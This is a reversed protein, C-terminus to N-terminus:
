APSTSLVRVTDILWTGNQNVLVYRHRERIRTGNNYIYLLTVEVVNEGSQAAESATVSSIKSWFSDYGSKGGAPSNQFKPTLRNWAQDRNGPMLAYYDTVAALPTAPQGANPQETPPPLAPQETTTTTTPTPPKTSTSTTPAPDDTTADATAPVTADQDGARNPNAPTDKATLMTTVLAAVVAVAVLGAAIAVARLRRKTPSPGNGPSPDATAVTPSPAAALPAAPDSANAPALGTTPSSAIAPTAAAPEATTTPSTRAPPTAAAPEAATTPSTGTPPTNAVTPDATTTPSTGAPLDSAATPSTGTPPTAAAPDAAATPSTETPAPSAAATESRTASTTDAPGSEAAAPPTAAQDPVAVPVPTSTASDAPADALATAAVATGLAGAKGTSAAAPTSDAKAVAATFEPTPKKSAHAALSLRAQTVKPRDAPDTSLLRTLVDTLPGANKPPNIEGSAVRYLLGMPNSSSGAPPAGEVVAYLTAGLSYVDSAFTAQGGKAVEPALYAPTGAFMGTMTATLDEVVRSVGFDTLKTSGDAGVLINAPKVDRHVVGADHAATLAEAVEAGIRAVDPYPLTGLTALSRSPFHEMILYPRGNDEVVDYVTILRPHLLRAAIRGERMTRRVLEDNQTGTLGAPVHVQKVAVTRRLREDFARWVAGMNGSGLREQLRYRGAIDDM